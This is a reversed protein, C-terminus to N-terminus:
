AGESTNITQENQIQGDPTERIIVTKLSGDDNLELEIM